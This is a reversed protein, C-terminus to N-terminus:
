TRGLARLTPEVEGTAQFSFDVYEPEEWQIRPDCSQLRRERMQEEITRLPGERGSAELEIYGRVVYEKEVFVRFTTM